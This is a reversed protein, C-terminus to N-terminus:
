RRRCRYCPRRRRVCMWDLIFPLQLVRPLVRVEKVCLITSAPSLDEAITAGAAAYAADPYVRRFSPQVIVRLGGKVLEAVNEPALPARREWRRRGGGRGMVGLPRARRRLPSTRAARM